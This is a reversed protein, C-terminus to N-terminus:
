VMTRILGSKGLIPEAIFTGDDELVLRVRIFDVRGQASSINRSLRAPIRFRRASSPSLGSFSELFPRVVRDFVIMASTVHGPLGWLQKEGVRAFITPKGPSITLGHVLIESCPLSRIVDMTLDRTGVSSGGSVLIMDTESVARECAKRLAEFDDPVIGYSVAKAGATKVMASITHTNIDRIRGPAPLTAIDTLEDGTSIIGVKPKKFIAIQERGLAALLGIEQPRLRAGKKLALTNKKIDEDKEVVHTGPAVAKHVELTTADLEESYEIMVVADAGGPLMAGTPIRAAEGPNLKIEPAEGMLIEGTIELYAPNSQSAGFTSAAQVAYGDMTSRSFGPLDCPATVAEALIRLDADMLAVTKTGVTGFGPALEFVRELPMVKFFGKM